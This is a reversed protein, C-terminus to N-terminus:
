NFIESIICKIAYVTATLAPILFIAAFSFLLLESVTASDSHTSLAYIATLIFITLAGLFVFFIKKM